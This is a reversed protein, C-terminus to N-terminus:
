MSCKGSPLYLAKFYYFHRVMCHEECQNLFPPWGEKRGFYSGGGGFIKKGKSM